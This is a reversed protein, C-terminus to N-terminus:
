DQKIKPGFENSIALGQNLKERINIDQTVEECLRNIAM